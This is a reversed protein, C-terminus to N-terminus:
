DWVSVEGRFRPLDLCRSRYGGSISYAITTKETVDKLSKM